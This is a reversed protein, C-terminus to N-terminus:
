LVGEVLMYRKSKRDYILEHVSDFNYLYAKIEQIYRWFNLESIELDSLADEKTIHGKKLLADFIYLLAQSKGVKMGKYREKWFPAGLKDVGKNDM